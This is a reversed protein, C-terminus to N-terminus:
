FELGHERLSDALSAIRGHYLYGGRDFTVKTVGKAKAAEALLRGVEKAELMRASAPAKKKKGKKGSKGKASADDPAPQEAPKGNGLKLTSAAALTRGSSDDILQTYLHLNSRFVSVRPRGPTGIVTHRVHWHRRKRNHAKKNRIKM